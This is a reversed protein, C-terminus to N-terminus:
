LALIMFTNHPGPRYGGFPEGHTFGFKEYCRRAPRFYEDTGTELSLRTYGRGRAEAVLHRLLLTAVGSRTRSARTRMSKLEGHAPDLERLAGCGAIAGDDDEVTWFTIDPGRLADLELTYASEAPTVARLQRVHEALFEAIEPGSLDNQVVRM